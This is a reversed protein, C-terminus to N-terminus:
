SDHDQDGPLLGSAEEGLNTSEQGSACNEPKGYKEKNLKNIFTCDDWYCFVWEIKKEEM